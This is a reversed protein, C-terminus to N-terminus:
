VTGVPPAARNARQEAMFDNLAEDLTQKRAEVPTTSTQATGTDSGLVAPAPPATAAPVPIAASGYKEGYNVLWTNYLEVAQNFDGNAAAVFPHFLDTDVEPHEQAVREIQGEYYTNNQQQEVFEVVAALRPDMEQPSPAQQQGQPAAPAPQGNLIQQLQGLVASGADEGFMETTMSVYTDIPDANLNDWLRVADRAQAAQQELQTM